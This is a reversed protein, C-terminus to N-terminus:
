KLFGLHDGMLGFHIIISLAMLLTFLLHIRRWKKIGLSKIIEIDYFSYVNFSLLLITAIVAFRMGASEWPWDKQMATSMHALVFMLTILSIFCHARRIFKPMFVKKLRSRIYFAFGFIVTFSYLTASSTGTIDVPGWPIASSHQEPIPRTEEIINWDSDYVMGIDFEADESYEVIAYVNCVLDSIESSKLNLVFDLSLSKGPEIPTKSSKSLDLEGYNVRYILEYSIARLGANHSVIAVFEGYGTGRLENETLHITESNGANTSSWSWSSNTHQLNLNIDSIGSVVETDDLALDLGVAGPYITNEYRVSSGVNVSDQYIEQFNELERMDAGSFDIAVETITYPQNNNVVVTYENPGPAINQQLQVDFLPIPDEGYEREEERHAEYNYAWYFVSFFIIVAILFGWKWTSFIRTLAKGLGESDM